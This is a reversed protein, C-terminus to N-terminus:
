PGALQNLTPWTTLVFMVIAAIALVTELITGVLSGVAIAFGVRISKQIRDGFPLTTRYCFEGIFGGLVAGIVIGLLPGGVIFAPLLGVLGLIMGAIAGMQAWRSAGVQRAGWFAALFEIGSSAILTLIIVLFPWGFGSFGTAVCWILLGVLILSPGPLGPAIAGIAGITMIALVIWYITYLDM